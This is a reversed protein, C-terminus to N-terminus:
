LHQLREGDRDDASNQDRHNQRQYNCRRDVKCQRMFSCFRFNRLLGLYRLLLIEPIISRTKRTAEQQPIIPNGRAPERWWRFM